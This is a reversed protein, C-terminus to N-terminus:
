KFKVKFPLTGKAEIKGALVEIAYEQSQPMMYGFIKRSIHDLNKLAFPNGFHVVASLRGSFNLSNILYEARRTLCDTGLYPRTDCYTIFVVEKHRTSAVLVAENEKATAYDSITIVEAEPFEEHIKNIIAEPHYWTRTITEQSLEETARSIETMIVFLRDTNETDLAADVGPDTVATICDKAIAYYNKEDEETFPEANVPEEGLYAQLALVRRAAENLREESFMGDNYCQKLYEYNERNSRRYNPLVIDNGAAIALGPIKDEGYEQLISMMAFSDTFCVGDFGMNRIYDIVKKSLSAPRDPDLVTHITHGSMISPLLGKKLLHKYPVFNVREMTEIDNVAPVNLMHTDAPADGPYHKGCSMFHYEAFVKSIQEAAYCVREPDDSFTRYVRAPGDESLVDIVPSWNANCGHAKADRVVAKAFARYYEPKNCASLTMMPVPPLKSLPFGMEMDTVMIIPYDAAEQIRKVTEPEKYPIQVCGLGHNRILDLVFELDEAKSASIGRACLLMGLKQETSLEELKLNKM